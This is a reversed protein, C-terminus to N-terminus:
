PAPKRSPKVPLATVPGAPRTAVLALPQARAELAVLNTTDRDIHRARAADGSPMPVAAPRRVAQDARETAKRTAGPDGRSIVPNGMVVRRDGQVVVNGYDRLPTEGASKDMADRVATAAAAIRTDPRGYIFGYIPYITQGHDDIAAYWVRVASWDNAPSVDIVSVGRDIRGKARSRPPAWNAHDVIVERPGVVQRVVAVHGVRMRKMRKFVMVAGPKPAAGTPLGRARATGWWTWANGQIQINSVQRAYPVCEIAVAPKALVPCLGIGIVLAAAVLWRRGAHGDHMEAM